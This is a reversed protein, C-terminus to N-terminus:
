SVRGLEAALEAAQAFLRVRELAAAAGEPQAHAGRRHRDITALTIVIREPSEWGAWPADGYERSRLLVRATAAVSSGAGLLPAAGDELWQLYDRMLEVEARGALPGHGPVVVEADLALIRELATIWSSAPGAWMVPAVGVFLVDAAFCVRVDPVHVILDGMTHAPGVEILRLERGGVELELEGDFEVEPPTVFVGSFDYPDLMADVYDGLERVPLRPVLPLELRGLVPVPLSGVRALLGALRKFRGLQDPSEGRILRAAARGSVIRAGALLQNGWVHDGDSHTNIVTEIPASVRERVQGLMRATLRLDWLTDILAAAGDGAVVGANSEGWGGNPQLWAYTGPAIEHLGGAFRAPAGLLSQEM